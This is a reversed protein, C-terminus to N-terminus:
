EIPRIQEKWKISLTNNSSFIFELIVTM